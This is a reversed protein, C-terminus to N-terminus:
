FIVNTVHTIIRFKKTYPNSIKGRMYEQFPSKIGNLFPHVEYM